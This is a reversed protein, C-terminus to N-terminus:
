EYWGTEAYKVAKKYGHECISCGYDYHAQNQPPFKIKWGMPELKKAHEACAMLSHITEKEDIRGYVM